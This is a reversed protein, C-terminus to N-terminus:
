QEVVYLRYLFATGLKPLTMDDTLRPLSAHQKFLTMPTLRSPLTDLGWRVPVGWAVNRGGAGMYVSHEM